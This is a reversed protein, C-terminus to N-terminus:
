EFDQAHLHLYRILGLHKKNQVLCNVQAVVYKVKIMKNSVKLSNTSNCYHTLILWTERLLFAENGLVEEAQPVM